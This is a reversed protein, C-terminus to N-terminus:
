PALLALAREVERDLLQVEVGLARREAAAARRFRLLRLADAEADGEARERRLERAPQAERLVDRAHQDRVDLRAARRRPRREAAAVDDELHVAHGDARRGLGTAFEAVDGGAARGEQEDVAVALLREDGHALFLP